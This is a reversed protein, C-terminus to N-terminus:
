PENKGGKNFTLPNPLEHDIAQQNAERIPQMWPTGTYPQVPIAGKGHFWRINGHTTDDIHTATM